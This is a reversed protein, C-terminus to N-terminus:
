PGQGYEKVYFTTWYRGQPGCEDTLAVVRAVGAFSFRTATDDVIGSRVLEGIALRQPDLFRLEHDYEIGSGQAINM